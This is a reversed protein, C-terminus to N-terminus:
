RGQLLVQVLRLHLVELVDLLLHLGPVAEDEAEGLWPPEQLPLPQLMDEAPLHADEEGCVEVVVPAMGM